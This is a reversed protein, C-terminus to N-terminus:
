NVTQDQADFEIVLLTMKLITMPSTKQMLKLNMMLSTKRKAQQKLNLKMKFNLFLQLSALMLFAASVHYLVPFM